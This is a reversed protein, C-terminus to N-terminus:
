PVPAPARDAQPAFPDITYPGGRVADSGPAGSMVARRDYASVYALKREHDIAIDEPGPVAPIPRCVAAIEQRIGTFYGAASLFRWTLVSVVVVVALAIYGAIRWGRSM